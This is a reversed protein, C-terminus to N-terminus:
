DISRYCCKLRCHLICHLSQLSSESSLNFLSYILLYFCFDRRARSKQQRRNKTNVKLEPQGLTSNSSVQCSSYLTLVALGVSRTTSLMNEGTGRAGPGNHVFAPALSLLLLPRKSRVVNRHSSRLDCVRRSLGASTCCPTPLLRSRTGSSAEIKSAGAYCLAMRRMVIQRVGLLSPGRVM